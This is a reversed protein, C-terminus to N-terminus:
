VLWADLVAFFVPVHVITRSSIWFVHDALLDPNFMSV